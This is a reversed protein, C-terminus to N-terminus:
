IVKKFLTELNKNQRSSFIKVKVKQSSSFFFIKHFINKNNASINFSIVTFYYEAVQKFQKCLHYIICVNNYEKCNDYM